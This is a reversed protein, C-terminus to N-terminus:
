LLSMVLSYHGEVERWPVQSLHSAGHFWSLAHNLKAETFLIVRRSPNYINFISSSDFLRFEIKDRDTTVGTKGTTAVRYSYTVQFDDISLLLHFGYM